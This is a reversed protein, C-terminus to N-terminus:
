TKSTNDDFYYSPLMSKQFRGIQMVRDEMLLHYLIPEVDIVISTHYTSWDSEFTKPKPKSSWYVLGQILLVKDNSIGCEKQYFITYLTEKTIKRVFYSLYDLNHTVVSFHYWTGM